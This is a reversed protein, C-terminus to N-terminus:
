VYNKRKSSSLKKIWRKKRAVNKNDFEKSLTGNKM